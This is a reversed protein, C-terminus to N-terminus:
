LLLLIEPQALFDYIAGCLQQSAFLEQMLQLLKGVFSRAQLDTSKRRKIFEDM